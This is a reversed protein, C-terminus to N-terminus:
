LGGTILTANHLLKQLLCFRIKTYSLSGKLCVRELFCVLDKEGSKELAAEVGRWVISARCMCKTRPKRRRRDETFKGDRPFCPQAVSKEGNEFRRFPIDRNIRILACLSSGPQRSTTSLFPDFPSVPLPHTSPHAKSLKHLPLKPLLLPLHLALLNPSSPFLITTTSPDSDLSSATSISNTPASDSTLLSKDKQGERSCM